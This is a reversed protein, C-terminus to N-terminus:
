FSPTWGNQSPGKEKKGLLTYICVHKEVGSRFHKEKKGETNEMWFVIMWKDQYIDLM